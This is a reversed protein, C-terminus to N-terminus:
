IELCKFDALTNKFCWTLEHEQEITAPVKSGLTDVLFM